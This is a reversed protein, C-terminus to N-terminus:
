EEKMASLKRRLSLWRRTSKDTDWWEPLSGRKKRNEDSRRKKNINADLMRILTDLDNNSLTM